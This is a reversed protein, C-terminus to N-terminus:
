MTLLALLIANSYTSKKMFLMLEFQFIEFNLQLFFLGFMNSLVFKGLGGWQAGGGGIKEKM